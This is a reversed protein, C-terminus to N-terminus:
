RALCYNSLDRFQERLKDAQDAIRSTEDMNCEIGAKGGACDFVHRWLADETAILASAARTSELCAGTRALSNLSACLIGIVLFLGILKILMARLIGRASPLQM